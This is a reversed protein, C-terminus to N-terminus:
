LSNIGQGCAGNTPISLAMTWLRARSGRRGTTAEECGSPVAAHGLICPRAARRQEVPRTMHQLREAITRGGVVLQQDALQVEQGRPVGVPQHHQHRGSRRFRGVGRHQKGGPVQGAMRAGRHDGGRVGGREGQMEAAPHARQGGFVAVHQAVLQLLAVARHAAPGGVLAALVVCGADAARDGTPAGVEDQDVVRDLVGHLGIGRQGAVLEPVPVAGVKGGAELGVAADGQHHGSPVLVIQAPRSISPSSPQRITRRGANASPSSGSPRISPSASHGSHSLPSFSARRRAAM